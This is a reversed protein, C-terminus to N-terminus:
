DAAVGMGKASIMGPKIARIDDVKDIKRELKNNREEVQASALNPQSAIAAIISAAIVLSALATVDM